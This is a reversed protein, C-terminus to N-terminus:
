HLEACATESGLSCAHEFDDRASRGQLLRRYLKARSLLADTNAPDVRLVRSLDDVARELEGLETYIQSRLLFADKEQVVWSPPSDTRLMRDLTDLAPRWQKAGAQKRARTTYLTILRQRAVDFLPDIQLIREYANAAELMKKQWTLADGRGLLAWTSSPDLELARDFDGIAREVYANLDSRGGRKGFSLSAIKLYTQGRVIYADVYLNDATIARSVLDIKETLSHTRIAARELAMAARRDRQLRGPDLQSGDATQLQKRLSELETKLQTNETQLQRHHAALQEDSKLRKVAEMLTDLHVTAKIKVFLVVRDGDLSRRRDLIQTETVAAAITRVGLLNLHSTVGGSHTEIDESATEIYVGAEEVARRKARLLLNEEAGALTDSDGMVYTAEAVVVKLNQASAPVSAFVLSAMLWAPMWHAM